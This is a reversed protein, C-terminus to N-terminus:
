VPRKPTRRCASRFGRRFRRHRVQGCSQGHCVPRGGSQIRCRMRSWPTAALPFRRRRPTRPTQHGLEWCVRRYGRRRPEIPGRREAPASWFLGSDM